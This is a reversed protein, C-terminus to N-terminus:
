PSIMRRQIAPRPTQPGNTPSGGVLRADNKVIVGYHYEEDLDFKSRFSRLLAVREDESQPTENAWDMWPQLHALSELVADQM